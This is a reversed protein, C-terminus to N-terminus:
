PTNPESQKLAQSPLGLVLGMLWLLPSHKVWTGYRPLGRSIREKSSKCVSTDMFVQIGTWLAIPHALEQHLGSGDMTRKRSESAFFSDVVIAVWAYLSAVLFCSCRYLSATYLIATCPWTCHSMCFCFCCLRFCSCQRTCRIMCLRFCSLSLPQNHTSSEYTTLITLIIQELIGLFAHPPLLLLFLLPFIVVFAVYVYWLRKDHCSCCLLM